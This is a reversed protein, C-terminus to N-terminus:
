QLILKKNIIGDNTEIELFYIGKANDSLNIQKTYEGIFQELNENILEEGIVNLIRVKLDQIYESTFTINFVDRSPNPYVDLNAIAAGGDIRVSTPQTWFVFPSWISRHSSITANCYARVGARYSEGAVLGFKIQSMAPYFTGFGGVTQWASGVTDVRLAVRAYTYAGTSDWTFNAKTHNATYTQVALNALIPCADATTFTSVPSYNSSSGGCYFAKLKWEYTTSASLGLLMQSTTNLGFNCLGNGVGAARTSWTSTGVERYRVYYKLVLCNTTNMNDWAFNVRTDIVDFVNLGTPYDTCVVYTCSGDDVTALPDYNTATPDTCGYIQTSGITFTTDVICGVADTVTLTYTGSCLGIINNQTSGDSWLYEIPANSSSASVFAWGDCASQSSNQIVILSISLDCYQCSGDNCTATSDYNYAIPDTCGDPLICSSDDCTATSDYNCAIPDTCGDPLICSGDDCLALPDYNCAILDTCGNPLICSGDDVNAIPDYNCALPNTCGYLDGIIFTDVVICGVSDTSQLTYLGYCLSSVFNVGSPIPTGGNDFWEFNIPPYSSSANAFAFGDCSSSSTANLYTVTTTLDCYICTGDDVTALQNYNAAMSDTCGYVQCDNSFSAWPDINTWNATSYAASDVDICYLNYNSTFNNSNSMNMNNGNRVDLSTLQNSYCYLRYLATNNSVDLSTLQNSYCYLHTLAIAGNVNLSTLQNSNCYLYTLATNNSVDLATLQNNYCYLTQLSDFDEIGTLDAISDYSVNLYMQDAILYTYVSDNNAIGDGMQMAELRAEFHDDPVYTKAYYCSGDNVTANPNYNINTSDTCGPVGLQCDNSFGAWPDINYWNATSYAASDVDICYLNYNSTFNNGNYMNMNNGNRLDLSTLQNSNCNLYYLATNNSVDLTTLQNSNCNLYTLATNNSVDLTTLQNSQCQLYYLATNTSVDL